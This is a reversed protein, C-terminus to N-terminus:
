TRRRRPGRGPLRRARHGATPHWRSRVDQVLQEWEHRVEDDPPRDGRRVRGLEDHVERGLAASGVITVMAGFLASLTAFVAGASGYRSAESSFLRPLYLTAGVAYVATLAAAIAGFPALAAPGIRRASLIWGTWVLFAWTLPAMLLAAGLGYRGRDLVAHLSIDAMLYALLGLIWRLDNPTNRVSRPRLDWTQEFMRQVARSFSLLSIMLFLASLLDVSSDAGASPSLVNQVAQAGGDTLGYRKVIHEAVDNLGLRDLIMGCLIALPVMAALAASALAMARDFGAVQQFRRVVRLVFAPRLWFTM